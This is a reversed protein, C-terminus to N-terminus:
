KNINRMFMQGRLQASTSWHPHFPFHVDAKNHFSFQWLLIWVLLTHRLFHWYEIVIPRVLTQTKEPSQCTCTGSYGLSWLMMVIVPSSTVYTQLQVCPVVMFTLQKSPIWQIIWSFVLVFMRWPQCFVVFWMYFKIETWNITIFFLNNM